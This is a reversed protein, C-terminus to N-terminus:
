YSGTHIDVCFQIQMPPKDSTQQLVMKQSVILQVKLILCWDAIFNENLFYM